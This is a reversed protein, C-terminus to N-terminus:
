AFPSAGLGSPDLRGWRRSTLHDFKCEDPRDHFLRVWDFIITRGDASITPFRDNADSLSIALKVPTGFSSQRSMRSTVWLDADTGSTPTGSLYMTLEDESLRPGNWSGSGLGALMTPPGFRSTSDCKVPAPDIDPTDVSADKDHGNGSGCAAFLLLAVVSAHRLLASQQYPEPDRVCINRMPHTM